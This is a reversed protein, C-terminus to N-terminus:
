PLLNDEDRKLIVQFLLPDDKAQAVQTDGSSKYVIGNVIFRDLSRDFQWYGYQDAYGLERILRASVYIAMNQNDLEGSVTAQNIPWTRFSNYGILVNLSIDEYKSGSDEGYPLPINIYRKWTILQKGADVDIFDNIIKKYHDWVKDPIISNKM